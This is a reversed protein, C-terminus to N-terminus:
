YCGHHESCDSYKILMNSSCPIYTNGESLEKIIVRVDYLTDKEDALGNIPAIHEIAKDLHRIAELLQGKITALAQERMEQYERCREQYEVKKKEIIKHEMNKKITEIAALAKELDESSTCENEFYQKLNEM